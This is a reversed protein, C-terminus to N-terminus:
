GRLEPLTDQYPLWDAPDQHHGAYRHVAATGARLAHRVEDSVQGHEAQHLARVMPQLPVHVRAAPPPQRLVQPLPLFLSNTINSLM